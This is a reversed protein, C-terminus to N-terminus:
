LGFQVASHKKPDLGASNQRVFEQTCKICGGVTGGLPCWVIDNLVRLHTNKLPEGLVKKIRKM